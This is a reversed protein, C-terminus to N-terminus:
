NDTARTKGWVKRVHDVSFPFARRFGDTGMQAEAKKFGNMAQAEPTPERGIIGIRVPVTVRGPFDDRHEVPLVRLVTQGNEIYEYTPM